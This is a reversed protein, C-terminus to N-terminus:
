LVGGMNLKKFPVKGGQRVGRRRTANGRTFRGWWFMRAVHLVLSTGERSGGGGGTQAHLTRNVRFGLPRLEADFNGRPRRLYQLLPKGLPAFKEGLNKLKAIARSTGKLIPKGVPDVGRQTVAVAGAGMAPASNRCSAHGGNGASTVQAGTV